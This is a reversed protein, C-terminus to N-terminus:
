WSNLLGLQQTQGGPSPSSDSHKNRHNGLWTVQSVQVKVTAPGEALVAAILGRLPSCLITFMLTKARAQESSIRRSTLRKDVSLVFRYLKVRRISFSLNYGWAAAPLRSLHHLSPSGTSEGAFGLNEKSRLENKTHVQSGPHTRHGNWVQAYDSKPKGVVSEEPSTPM